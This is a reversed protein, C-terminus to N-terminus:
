KYTANKKQNLYEVLYIAFILIVTLAAILIEFRPFILTQNSGSLLLEHSIKPNFNIYEKLLHTRNEIHIYYGISSSALSVTLLIKPLSLLALKKKIFYKSFFYISILVLVIQFVTIWMIWGGGLYIDFLERM